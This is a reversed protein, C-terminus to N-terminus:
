SFITKIDRELLLEEKSYFNHKGCIFFYNDVAEYIDGKMQGVIIINM